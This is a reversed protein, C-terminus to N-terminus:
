PKHPRIIQHFVQLVQERLHPVSSSNDLCSYCLRKKTDLSIQSKERREWTPRDWGRLSARAFRVEDPADVFVIHTCLDDWGAEFMVAADLVAACASRDGMAEALRQEIRRRIRPHMIGNLVALQGADAFVKAGLRGRNVTGDGDFISEGWQRRLADRVDPEGLLQHGIADADILACGLAVFEKAAASKGSGIGGVLGIVPKGTSAGTM